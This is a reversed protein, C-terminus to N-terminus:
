YPFNTKEILRTDINMTVIINHQINALDYKLILIHLMQIEIIVNILEKCHYICDNQKNKIMKDM